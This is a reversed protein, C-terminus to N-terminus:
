LPLPPRRDLATYCVRLAALSVFARQCGTEGVALAARERAVYAGSSTDIPSTDIPAACM